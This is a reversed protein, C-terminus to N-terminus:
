EAALALKRYEAINGLNVFPDDFQPDTLVRLFQKFEPHDQRWICQAKFVPLPWTGWDLIMSFTVEDANLKKGLQIFDTMERYNAKQVVFDLRLFKLEGSTRLRGLRATNELLLDWNGGRRTVEYTAATGADFSVIITQINDHINKMRLWSRETLLVGNTQLSIALNPFDRGDLQYLFKRFVASAFPDGSGTVSVAFHRESPTAFLQQELLDQLHQRKEYEKGSPYNIRKPRCSPCYLNCSADNCLNIFTPAEAAELRAEIIADRFLPNTMASEVTPLSNNQIAPCVKHDCYRFSGDLISSRIAQSTQSNWIDMLSSHNLNGIPTPLWASCCAYAKGDEYLDFQTNRGRHIFRYVARQIRYM